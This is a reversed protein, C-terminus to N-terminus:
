IYIALPAYVCLFYATDNFLKHMHYGCGFASYVLSHSVRLFLVNPKIKYYDWYSYYILSDSCLIKIGSTSIAICM